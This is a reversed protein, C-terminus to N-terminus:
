PGHQMTLWPPRTQGSTPLRHPPNPQQHRSDVGGQRRAQLWGALRETLRSILEPWASLRRPRHLRVSSYWPCTEQGLPWQWGWAHPLVLWAERGLSGALHPILDDVTIVLDLAALQATLEDISTTHPLLPLSLAAIEDNTAEPLLGVFRVGQTQLLPRWHELAPARSTGPQVNAKHRSRWLIGVCPDSGLQELWGRWHEVRPPDAALPARHQFEGAELRLLQPLRALSIQVDCPPIEDIRRVDVSPFTRTLLGALQGDCTLVTRSAQSVIKPLCAVLLLMDALATDGHILIKKGKLSGGEWVPIGEYRPEVQGPLRWRWAYEQWGRQFEGQQLLIQAATWHALAHDPQQQILTDCIQLAEDFRGLHRLVNTLRIRTDAHPQIQLAQAYSEAALAFQEQQEFGVGLNAASEFDRPKIELARQYCAIAEDWRQQEQLAKGLCRYAAAHDPNEQSRKSITPSRRTGNGASRGCCDWSCARRPFCPSCSFPGSWTRAPRKGVARPECSAAGLNLHVGPVDRAM